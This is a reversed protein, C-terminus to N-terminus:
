QAAEEEPALITIDEFPGDPCDAEADERTEYVPLFAVSKRFMHSAPRLRFPGSLEMESWRMLRRLVVYHTTTTESM